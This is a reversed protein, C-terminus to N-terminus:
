EALHRANAAASLASPSGARPLPHTVYGKTYRTLLETHDNLDGILHAATEAATWSLGPVPVNFDSIRRWMRANRTVVNGLAELTLPQNRRTEDLLGVPATIDHIPTMPITRRRPYTVRIVDM